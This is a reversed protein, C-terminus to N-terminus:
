SHLLYSPPEDWELHEFIMISLLEVGAFSGVCAGSSESAFNGSWRSCSKVKRGMRLLNAVARSIM